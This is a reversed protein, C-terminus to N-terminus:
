VAPFEDLLKAFVWSRSGLMTYLQMSKIYGPALGKVSESPQLTVGGQLLPVVIEQRGSSAVLMRSDSYVHFSLAGCNRCTRSSSCFSFRSTLGFFLTIWGKRKSGTRGAHLAPVETARSQPSHSSVQNLTLVCMLAISM